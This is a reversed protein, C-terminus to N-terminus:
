LPPATPPDCKGQRTFGTPQGGVAEVSMRYVNHDRYFTTMRGTEEHQIYGGQSTFAVRHGAECVRSVSILPRQVDAAQAHLRQERPYPDHGGTRRSQGRDVLQRSHLDLGESEWQLTKHPMSPWNSLSSTRLPVPASPLSWPWPPSDMTPCTAVMTSMSTAPTPDLDKRSRGEKM